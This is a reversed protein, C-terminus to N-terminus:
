HRNTAHFNVCIVQRQYINIEIFNWTGFDNWDIGSSNDM